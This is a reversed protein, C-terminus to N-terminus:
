QKGETDEVLAAVFRVSVWLCGCSPSVVVTVTTRSAAPGTSKVCRSNNLAVLLQSTKALRAPPEWHSVPDLHADRNGPKGYSLGCKDSTM